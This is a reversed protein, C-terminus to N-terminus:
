RNLSLFICGFKIFFSPKAGKFEHIQLFTQFDKQRLSSDFTSFVSCDDLLKMSLSNIWFDTSGFLFILDLYCKELSYLQFYATDFSPFLSFQGNYPRYWQQLWFLSKNKRGWINSTGGSFQLILKVFSLCQFM